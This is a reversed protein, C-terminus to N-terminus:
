DDDEDDYRNEWLKFRNSDKSYVATTAPYYLCVDGINIPRLTESCVAGIQKNKILKPEESQKKPM